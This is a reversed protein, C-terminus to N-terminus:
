KLEVLVSVDSYYNQTTITGEPKDRNVYDNYLVSGNMEEVINYMEETPPLGQPDENVLTAHGEGNVRTNLDDPTTRTWFVVDVFGSALAAARGLSDVQVLEINKGMRKGMEALVATNFGAFNGDASVYDMPPLSGTVGVKITDGGTRVFAVQPPNKDDIDTIFEKVLRDMSGDIKMGKIVNNFTDRLETNDEKMMFAYGNSMYDMLSSSFWDEEGPTFNFSKVLNENRACIYDAMSNPVEIATVERTQLGLIMADMSDYFHVTTEGDLLNVPLRDIAGQQEMYECAAKRGACVSAYEEESLNLLSLVGVSTERPGYDIVEPESPVESVAPSESDSTNEGISSAALESKSSASESTTAPGGTCGSLTGLTLVLLLMSALIKKCM